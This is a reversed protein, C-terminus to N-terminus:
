DAPREDMTVWTPPVEGACFRELWGMISNPRLNAERLASIAIWAFAIDSELSEVRRPWASAHEVHFMLNLEHRPKGRQIFRNEFTTILSGVAVPEGCEELFERALADEASEGFEVHGGPLYAYGGRLDHCLLVSHDSVAVGRAITEIHPM